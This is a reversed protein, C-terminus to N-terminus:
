LDDTTSLEYAENRM